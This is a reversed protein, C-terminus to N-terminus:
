VGNHNLPIIRKLKKGLERLSRAFRALQERGQVGFTSGSANHLDKSKNGELKHVSPVFQSFPFLGSFVTPQRPRRHAFRVSHQEFFQM